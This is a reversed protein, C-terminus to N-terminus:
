INSNRFAHSLRFRDRECRAYSLTAGSCTAYMYMLADNVLHINQKRQDDNLGKLQTANLSPCGGVRPLCRQSYLYSLSWILCSSFVVYLVHLSCILCAATEDRFQLRPRVSQSYAASQLQPYVYEPRVTIQGRIFSIPYLANQVLGSHSYRSASHM